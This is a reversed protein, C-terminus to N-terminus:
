LTLEGVAPCLLRGSVSNTCCDVPVDQAPNCEGGPEPEFSTLVTECGGLNNFLCDQCVDIPYLFPDSEVEGGALDGFVKVEAVITSGASFLSINNADALRVAFATSGGDPLVSGSFPVEFEDIVSDSGANRLKVRAGEVRITRQLQTQTDSTEIRSAIVPYMDYFFANSADLAGSQRFTDGPSSSISCAGGEGSDPVQNQVIFMSDGGGDVTCAPSLVLASLAGLVLSTIRRRM